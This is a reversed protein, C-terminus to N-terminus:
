LTPNQIEHWCEKQVVDCQEIFAGRCLLGREDELFPAAPRSQAVDPHHQAPPSSAGPLLKVLQSDRWSVLATCVFSDGPGRCSTAFAPGDAQFVPERWRLPGGPAQVGGRRPAAERQIKCLETKSSEPFASYTAHSWRFANNVLFCTKLRNGLGACYVM